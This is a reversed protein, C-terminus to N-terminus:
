NSREEESDSREKMTQGFCLACIVTTPALTPNAGRAKLIAQTSPSIWVATGCGCQVQKAGTIGYHDPAAVITLPENPPVDTLTGLKGEQAMRRLRRHAEPNAKLAARIAEIESPM